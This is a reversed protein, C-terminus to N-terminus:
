LIGVNLNEIVFEMIKTFYVQNEIQKLNVFSFSLLTIIYNISGQYQPINNIRNTLFRNRLLLTLRAFLFLPFGEAMHIGVINAGEPLDNIEFDLDDLNYFGNEISEINPNIDGEGPAPPQRMEYLQKRDVQAAVINAYEISCYTPDYAVGTGGGLTPDNHNQEPFPESIGKRMFLSSHVDGNRHELSIFDRHESNNGAEHLNHRAFIEWLVPLSNVKENVFHPLRELIKARSDPHGLFHFVLRRHLCLSFDRQDINGLFDLLTERSIRMVSLPSPPLALPIGQFNEPLNLDRMSIPLYFPEINEPNMVVDGLGRHPHGHSSTSRFFFPNRLSGEAIKVLAEQVMKQNEEMLDRAHDRLNNRTFPFAHVYKHFDLGQIAGYEQRLRVTERFINEAHQSIINYDRDRLFNPDYLQDYDNRIQNLREIQNM